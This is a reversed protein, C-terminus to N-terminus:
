DEAEEETEEDVSIVEALFDKDTEIFGDTLYSLGKYFDTKAFHRMDVTLMPAWAGLHDGLFNKQTTLLSVAKEENGERLACATRESLIKMFELELAIHDEGEHWDAVKDLDNARYIALVEDRAEQMLLRKESTYVSEFPFAAGDLENTNGIFVRVYDIALETLTNSCVKGLYTALLRNGEDTAENGTAAPFAMECMDKLLEKNVEVRYLRSIFGYNAARNDCVAALDELYLQEETKAGEAKVEETM